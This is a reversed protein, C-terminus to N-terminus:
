PDRPAHASCPVVARYEVARRKARAIALLAYLLDIMPTPSSPGFRPFRLSQASSPTKLLSLRKLKENEDLVSAIDHQWDLSVM